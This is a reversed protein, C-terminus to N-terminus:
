LAFGSDIRAANSASATRARSRLPLVQATRPSIRSSPVSEASKCAAIPRCAAVTPTSLSTTTSSEASGITAPARDTRPQRPEASSTGSTAAAASNSRAATAASSTTSTLADFANRNHRIASASSAALPSLLRTSTPAHSVDEHGGEHREDDRQDTRRERDLAELDLSISLQDAVVPRRCVVGLAARRGHAAGHDDRRDQESIEDCVHHEHTADRRRPQQHQEEHGAKTEDTEDVVEDLDAFLATKP